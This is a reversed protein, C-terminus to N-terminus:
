IGSSVSRWWLAYSGQHSLSTGRIRMLHNTIFHGCTPRIPLYVNCWENMAHGHNVVQEITELNFSIEEYVVGNAHIFGQM